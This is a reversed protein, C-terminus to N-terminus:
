GHEGIIGFKGEPRGVEYCCIIGFFQTRTVGLRDECQCSQYMDEWKAAVGLQTFDLEPM